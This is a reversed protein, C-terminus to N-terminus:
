DESGLKALQGRLTTWNTDAGSSKDFLMQFYLRQEEEENEGQVHLPFESSLDINNKYAKIFGYEKFEKKDENYNQFYVVNRWPLDQRNLKIVIAGTKGERAFIIARNTLQKQKKLRKINLLDFTQFYWSM